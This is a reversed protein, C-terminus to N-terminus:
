EWGRGGELERRRPPATFTFFQTLHLAARRVIIVEGVSGAGGGVVPGTVVVFGLVFGEDQAGIHQDGDRRHGLRCVEATAVDVPLDHLDLDDGLRTGVSQEAQTGSGKTGVAPAAAM